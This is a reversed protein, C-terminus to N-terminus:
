PTPTSYTTSTGVTFKRYGSYDARGRERLHKFLLLRGSGSWTVQAPLWKDDDVKRRQYTARAGKHVRAFLGWGISLDDLAEVEVRVLEYDAEDIWARAAFHRMMKGDATQPTVGARPTLTAVITERGDVSERGVFQIVYVRFLDDIAAADERRVKEQREADTRRGAPTSLTKVYTEAVKQRARDESALKEPPTPRGDEEILRRYRDEGPIGPYVEFVKQSTHLVRGAADLKEETRREVYMYGSQRVDDSALRAKAQTLFADHDPLPREQATLPALALLCLAAGIRHM